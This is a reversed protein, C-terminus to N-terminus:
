LSYTVTYTHVLHSGYFGRELRITSLLLSNHNPKPTITDIWRIDEIKSWGCLYFQSDFSQRSNNFFQQQFDLKMEAELRVQYWFDTIYAMKLILGSEFIFSHAKDSTKEISEVENQNIKLPTNEIDVVIYQLIESIM